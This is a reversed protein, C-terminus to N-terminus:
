EDPDTQRYLAMGLRSELFRRLQAVFNARIRWNPNPNGSAFAPRLTVNLGFSDNCKNWSTSSKCYQDLSIDKGM